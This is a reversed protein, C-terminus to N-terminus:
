SLFDSSLTLRFSHLFSASASLSRCMSNPFVHLATWEWRLICNTCSPLYSPITISVNQNQYAAVFLCVVSTSVFFLLAFSVKGVANPVNAIKFWKKQTDGITSGDYSLYIYVDGVHPAPFNWQLDVPFGARLTIVPKGTPRNRCVFEQLLFCHILV